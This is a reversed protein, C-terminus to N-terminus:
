ETTASPKWLGWLAKIEEYKYRTYTTTDTGTTWEYRLNALPDYNYDGVFSTTTGSNLVSGNANITNVTVQGKSIETLTNKATDKISVLGDVDNVVVEGLKM